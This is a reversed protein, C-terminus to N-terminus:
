GVESDEDSQRQIYSEYNLEDFGEVERFDTLNCTEALYTGLWSTLKQAGLLNMHEEDYFDTEVDLGLQEFMALSSFDLFTLGAEDAYEQVQVHMTRNWDEKPTKVLLLEIGQEECYSVIRDLYEKQYSVMELSEDYPDQDYTMESLEQPSCRKEMYYGRYVAQLDLEPDFDKKKLDDWRTHYKILPILFSVFPDPDEVAQTYVEIAERKGSSWPMTDLAKRWQSAKTKQYLSSVDLVVLRLEQEKACEQLWAYSIATPQVASGFAYASIGQEEYLQMGSIGYIIQSSGLMCVEVSNQDLESFQEFTVTEYCPNLWKPMLTQNLYVATGALLLLFGAAKGIQKKNM